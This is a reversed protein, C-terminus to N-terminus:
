RNSNSQCWIASTWEHCGMFPMISPMAYILDFIFELISSHLYYFFWYVANIWDLLNYTFCRIFTFPCWLQNTPCEHSYTYLPTENELQNLNNIEFYKSEDSKFFDKLKDLLEPNDRLKFYLLYIKNISSDNLKSNINIHLAKNEGLYSNTIISEKSKYEGNVEHLQFLPSNKIENDTSSPNGIVSSLPITLLVVCLIIVFIKTTLVKLQNGGEPLILIQEGKFLHSVKLQM